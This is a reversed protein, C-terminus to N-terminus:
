FDNSRPDRLLSRGKEPQGHPLRHESDAATEITATM